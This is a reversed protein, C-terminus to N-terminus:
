PEHTQNRWLTELLENTRSIASSTNLYGLNDTADEPKISGEEAERAVWLCIYILNDIDRESLNIKM